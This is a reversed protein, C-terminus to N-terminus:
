VYLSRAAHAVCGGVSEEKKCDGVDGVEATGQEREKEWCWEVECFIDFGSRARWPGPQHGERQMEYRGLLLLSPRVVAAFSGTLRTRSTLRKEWPSINHGARGDWREGCEGWHRRYGIEWKRKLFLRREDDWGAALVPLASNGM